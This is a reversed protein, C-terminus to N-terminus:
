CSTPPAARAAWLRAWIPRRWWSRAIRRCSRAPDLLYHIDANPKLDDISRIVESLRMGERYAYTAPAHVYGEVVVGSDLTPPLRSIRLVDGNRVAPSPAGARPAIDVNISWATRRSRRHAHAVAKGPDAESTLGGALEVM